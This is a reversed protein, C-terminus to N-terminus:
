KVVEYDPPVHDLCRAWGPMKYKQLIDLLNRKARECAQPSKYAQLYDQGGSGGSKLIWYRTQAAEVSSAGIILALTFTCFGKSTKNLFKITMM